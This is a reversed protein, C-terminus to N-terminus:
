DAAVASPWGSMQEAHKRDWEDEMQRVSPSHTRGIVSAYLHERYLSEQMLANQRAQRWAERRRRSENEAEVRAREEEKQQQWKERSLVPMVLVHANEDEGAVALAHDEDAFIGVIYSDEYNCHEVVYVNM